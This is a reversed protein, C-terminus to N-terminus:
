WVLAALIGSRWWVLELKVLGTYTLLLTGSQEMLLTESQQWVLSLTVLGTCRAVINRFVLGVLALTVLALAVFLM